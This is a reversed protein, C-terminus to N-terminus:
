GKGFVDDMQNLKSRIMFCIQHYGDLKGAGYENEVATSDRKEKLDNILMELSEM